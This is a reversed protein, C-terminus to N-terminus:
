HLFLGSALGKASHTQDDAVSAYLHVLLGSAEVARTICTALYPIGFLVSFPAHLSM